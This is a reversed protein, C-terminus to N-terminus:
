YVPHFLLNMYKQVVDVVSNECAAGYAVGNGLYEAALINAQLKIHIYNYIVM